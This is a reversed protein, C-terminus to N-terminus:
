VCENAVVSGSVRAWRFQHFGVALFGLGGVIFSLATNYYMPAAGLLPRILSQNQTHWGILVVSGFTAVGAGILLVGLRPWRFATETNVTLFIMARIVVFAVTAGVLDCWV